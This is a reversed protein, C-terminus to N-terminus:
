KSLRVLHIKSQNTPNVFFTFPTETKVGNSESVIKFIGDSIAEVDFTFATSIKISGKKGDKPLVLDTMPYSKLKGGSTLVMEVYPKWEDPITDLIMKWKEDLPNSFIEMCLHCLLTNLGFTRTHNPLFCCNKPKNNLNLGTEYPEVTFRGQAQQRQQIWQFEDDGNPNPNM